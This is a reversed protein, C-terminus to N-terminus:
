NRRHHRHHSHKDKLEFDDDDEEEEYDEVKPPLMGRRRKCISITLLALGIVIVVGSLLWFSAGNVIYVCLANKAPSYISCVLNCDLSNIGETLIDYTGNTFTGIITSSKDLTDNVKPKMTKAYGSAEAANEKAKDIYDQMAKFSTEITDIKSLLNARKTEDIGSCVREDIQNIKDRMDGLNFGALYDETFSTDVDISTINDLSELSEGPNFASLQNNLNEKLSKILDAYDFQDKLDLIGYISKDTLDAPCTLLNKVSVSESLMEHGIDDITPELQPCGDYFLFFILSFVISPIGLLITILLGFSCVSGALCRACFCTCFYISTYLIAIITLVGVVCYIAVNSYKQAIGLYDSVKDTMENVGSTSDKLPDILEPLDKDTFTDVQTKVDGNLTDLTNQLSKQMEQFDDFKSSFKGIKEIIEDMKTEIEGTKSAIKFQDSEYCNMTDIIADFEDGADKIESAGNDKASNLNSEVGEAATKAKELTDKLYDLFDQFNTTVSNLTTTVLDTAKDITTDITDFFTDITSDLNVPIKAVENIGITFQSASFFFFAIGIFVVAASIIHFLSRTCTIKKNTKALCCPCCAFIQGFLFVLFLIIMIAAVPLIFGAIGYVYPLVSTVNGSEYLETGNPFESSTELGAYGALGRCKDSIKAVTDSIANPQEFNCDGTSLSVGLLAFFM